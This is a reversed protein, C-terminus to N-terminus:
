NNGDESINAPIFFSVRTGSPELQNIHLGSNQGFRRKLLQDTNRLGVGSNDLDQNTSIGPGTDEVAVSLGESGGDIEVTLEGGDELSAIGHRVANEVLPQITMPPILYHQLSDPAKIRFELREGFRTKELELYKRIFELEEELKVLDREYSYLSYRLMESLKEIMTRTEAVDRSAAASISNLTNFLFHPNLQAKLGAIEQKRSLERLEAAQRERESLEQVSYVIHIVAFVVGYETFNSFWIWEPEELLGSGELYSIDFILDFLGLYAYHWLLVFGIGALIHLVLKVSGKMMYLERVIVYWAGILLIVKLITSLLNSLFAAFVPINETQLLIFTSLLTYLGAFLLVLLAGKLTVGPKTLSYYHDRYLNKLM